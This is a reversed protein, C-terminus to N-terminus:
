GQLVFWTLGVVSIIIGGALLVISTVSALHRDQARSGNHTRAIASTDEHVPGQTTSLSSPLLAATPHYPPPPDGSELDNTNGIYAPSVM